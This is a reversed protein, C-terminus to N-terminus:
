TTPILGMGKVSLALLVAVAYAAITLLAWPKLKKRLIEFLLILFLLATAFVIGNLILLHTASIQTKLTPILVHPTTGTQLAREMLGLFVAFQLVPYLIRKLM